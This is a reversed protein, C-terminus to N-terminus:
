TNNMVIGEISMSVNKKVLEWYLSLADVGNKLFSLVFSFAVNHLGNEAPKFDANICARLNGIDHERIANIWALEFAFAKAEEDHKSPLSHTFVHGLEHGITLMTKDLFDKLIFIESFNGLHKRNLAFGQIGEDWKGFKSHIIKLEDKSCLNIVVDKPLKEGSTKLFAEEILESIENADGVFQTLPRNKALFFDHSVAYTTTMIRNPHTPDYKSLNDRKDFKNEYNGQEYNSKQHSIAEYPKTSSPIYNLTSEITKITNNGINETKYKGEPKFFDYGIPKAGLYQRLLDYM